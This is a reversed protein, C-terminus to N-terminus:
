EGSRCVGPAPLQDRERLRRPLLDDLSSDDDPVALAAAAAGSLPQPRRPAGVAAGGGPGRYVFLGNVPDPAADLLARVGPLSAFRELSDDGDFAIELVVGWRPHYWHWDLAGWSVAIEVLIGGQNAEWERASYSGHLVEVSLWEAM